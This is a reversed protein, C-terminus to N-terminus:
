KAGTATDTAVSDPHTTCAALTRLDHVVPDAFLLGTKSNFASRELREALAEISARLDALEAVVQDRHCEVAELAAAFTDARLDGETSRRDALCRLDAIMQEISTKMDDTQGDRPLRYLMQMMHYGYGAITDDTADHWLWAEEAEALRKSLAEGTGAPPTTRKRADSRM